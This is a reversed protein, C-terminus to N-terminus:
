LLLDLHLVLKFGLDAPGDEGPGNEQDGPNDAVCYIDPHGRLALGVFVPHPYRVHLPVYLRDVRGELEDLLRERPYFVLYFSM